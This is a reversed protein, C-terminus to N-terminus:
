INLTRLKMHCLILRNYPFSSSRSGPFVKAAWELKPRLIFCRGQRSWTVSPDGHGTRLTRERSVHDWNNPWQPYCRASMWLVSISGCPAPLRLKGHANSASQKETPLHVFSSSVAGSPGVSGCKKNKIKDGYIQCGPRFIVRARM